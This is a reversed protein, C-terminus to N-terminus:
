RLTDIREKLQCIDDETQEIYIMRYTEHYDLERMELSMTVNQVFFAYGWAIMCPVFVFETVDFVGFLFIAFVTLFLNCPLIM